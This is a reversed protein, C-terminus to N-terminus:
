QRRIDLLEVLTVECGWQKLAEALRNKLEAEMGGRDHIVDAYSLTGGLSKLRNVAVERAATALNPVNLISADPFVIRYGFNMEVNLQANDQTTLATEIKEAKERLDVQVGRDVFPLLLIIGPGRAGVYRGLRFVAMRAYEPVIRIAIALSLVLFLLFIGPICFMIFTAAHDSSFTM